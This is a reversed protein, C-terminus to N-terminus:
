KKENNVCKHKVSSHRKNETPIFKQMWPVYALFLVDSTVYGAFLTAFLTHTGDKRHLVTM